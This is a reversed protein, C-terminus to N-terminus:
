RMELTIDYMYFYVNIQRHSFSTGSLPWFVVPYVRKQCKRLIRSRITQIYINKYIKLSRTHHLLTCCLLSISISTCANGHHGNQGAVSSGGGFIANLMGTNDVAASHIPIVAGIGTQGQHEVSYRYGEEINSDEGENLARLLRCCQSRLHVSNKERAKHPM